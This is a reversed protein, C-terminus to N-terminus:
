HRAICKRWQRYKDVHQIMINNKDEEMKEIEIAHENTVSNISRHMKEM